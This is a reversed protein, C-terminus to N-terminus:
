KFVKKEEVGFHDKRAVCTDIDRLLINNEDGVNQGYIIYPRYQEKPTHDEVYQKIQATCIGELSIYMKEDTFWIARFRFPRGSEAIGTIVSYSRDKSTTISQFQNVKFVLNHGMKTNDVFQCAESDCIRVLRFVDMTLPEQTINKYGIVVKGDIPDYKMSGGLPGGFAFQSGVQTAKVCSQNKWCQKAAHVASWGIEVPKTTEIQATYVEGPKLVVGSKIPVHRVTAHAVGVGLVLLVLLTKM